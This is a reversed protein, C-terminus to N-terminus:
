FPAAPFAEGPERFSEPFPKLLVVDEGCSTVGLTDFTDLSALAFVDGM